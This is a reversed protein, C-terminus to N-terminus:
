DKAGQSVGCPILKVPGLLGSPLPEWSSADFPKYDINVFFFNKWPIKERDMAAIRNASLNTVEIELTNKGEQITDDLRTRYPRCWLTRISQGNLKVRATNRVNGLDLIWEEADTDPKTFYCTYKATGSFNRNKEDGFETWSVLEKITAAEPTEPGGEIFEIHWEGELTHVPQLPLIYEWPECEVDHSFTRLICSEGPSLQVWVDTDGHLGDRIAALGREVTLPDFILVAKSNTRLPVWGDFQQDTRNTVFYDYGGPHTRRVFQLGDDVMRERRIGVVDFMTEINNGKIIRGKGIKAEQVTSDVAPLFKIRNLLTNLEQRRAELNGLGPVDRPMEGVVLITAGDGALRMISDLTGVPMFNCNAVILTKYPTNGVHIKGERLATDNRLIDDSIYDFTYGRDWMTKAAAYTPHVNEHLWADSNHVQLYHLMNRTGHDKSWLDHMPFYLLMDNDSSGSQLFSQCRAIYENLNRFDRSFTNTLGFHTSAYFLWGPFPIDKPSFPMGHYFVHNIGALFFKDIAPKVDSLPVQFHEGLWTCSESSTYRKQKLHSASSAFKSVLIEAGEPGFGETEPIDAAAYLDILNGPSGHSQSRTLSGKEHSWEDWPLAFEELLLDHITERYDSRVRAVRDPATKGLLSPLEKRLDYGRRDQFEAFFEDTWNAGYVEYSDNYFARPPEGSYNRFAEDFKALYNKLSQEAFYDMVNGEAGPAARKVQQKTWGQFVAYVAWKGEPASWDLRRESDVHGTLEIFEGSDSFAVLACLHANLQETSRIPKHLSTGSELSYEEFLVKAAADESGVWPGGYPWGTGATMDVGMDLRGAESITHRLMRMWEPTLYDIYRDEYGKAGYIPIIHVGGMGLSHYETLHRTLEEPTVASGLWWWYTWPRSEKEIEPWDTGPPDADMKATSFFLLAGLLLFSKLCNRFSSYLTM